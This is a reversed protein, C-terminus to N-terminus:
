KKEIQNFPSVVVTRNLRKTNECSKDVTTLTPTIFKVEKLNKTPSGSQLLINNYSKM